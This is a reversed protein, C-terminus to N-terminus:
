TIFMTTTSVCDLPIVDYTRGKDGHHKILETVKQSFVLGQAEWAAKVERRNYFWEVCKHWTNEIIACIPLQRAIRFVNNLSESGNSTMIGWRNLNRDLHQAWREQHLAAVQDPILEEYHFEEASVEEAAAPQNNRNRNNWTRRNSVQETPLNDQMIGTKRVFKYSAPRIHNIKKMYEECKWPKKHRTAQKFLTKIKKIHRDLTFLRAQQNRGDL